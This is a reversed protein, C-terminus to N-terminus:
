AFLAIIAAAALSHSSVSMDFGFLNIAILPHNSVLRPFYQGAFMVVAVSSAATAGSFGAILSTWGSMFGVAPGYSKSLYLYEGGATPWLHALRAYCSAGVLALVGGTLWLALIASPHPVLDAVVSPTTFIGVGVVSSVILAIGDRRRFSRCLRGSSNGMLVM